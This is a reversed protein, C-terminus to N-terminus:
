GYTEGQQYRTPPPSVGADDVCWAEIIGVLSQLPTLVRHSSPFARKGDLRIEVDADSLGEAADIVLLLARRDACPPNELTLAIQGSRMSSITAAILMSSRRSSM